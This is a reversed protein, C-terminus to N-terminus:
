QPDSLMDQMMHPDFGGENGYVDYDDGDEDYYPDDEELHEPM